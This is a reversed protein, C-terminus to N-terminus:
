CSSAAEAVAELVARWHELGPVEADAVKAAEDARRLALAGDWDPLSRYTAIEDATMPGGQNGLTRLSVASLSTRYDPDVSVLYRKAPVHHEVLRAVREGLLTRVAAAGILGHRADDGPVLQHGVDHVLAAAQLELDEPHSSAVAQACQLAHALLDVAERASAGRGQQRDSGVSTEAPTDFAGAGQALLQMLHDISGIGWDHGLSGELPDTPGSRM